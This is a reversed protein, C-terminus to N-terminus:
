WCVSGNNGGGNNNGHRNAAAYHLDNSTDVNSLGPVYRSSRVVGWLEGGGGPITAPNLNVPTLKWIAGSLANALDDHGNRPHVISEKGAQGIKRRLACLQEVCKPQQLMVITGSTWGVLSHLYLESASLPCPQYTIGVHSFASRTAGGGWDDGTVTNINWVLLHAALASVIEQFNFPPKSEYLADIVVVDRDKDHAMHAICMTFSDTGTGGAPDVFAVYSVGPLPVRITTDGDIAKEVLSRELYASVPQRFEGGYEAIASDPDDAFARDIVDQRLSPNLTRTDTQVVLIRPDGAAGYHRKWLKYVLGEMTAPSSAILMPGGTTALSPRLAVMLEEDSNALDTNHFFACEDLCISIATGGRVHRWSAAATELTIRRQLELSSATRSAVMSRLLETNDVIAVTYGHAYSAQKETPALFLSTGTEGLSLNESWDCLTSLYVSLASLAKSKGSRRGAVILLVEVMCGPEKDRGTLAKFIKREAKTLAEGVAAILLVRWHSWLEGPLAGGLLQPDALAKRMSTIPKM